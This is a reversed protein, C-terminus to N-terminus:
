VSNEKSFAEKLYKLGRSARIAAAKPTVGLITAIQRPPLGDIYRLKVAEAWAPKTQALRHIAKRVWRRQSELMAYQEPDDIATALDKIAHLPIDPGLGLLAEEVAEESLGTLEAIHPIDLEMRADTIVSKVLWRDREKGGSPVRDLAGVKFLHKVMRSKACVAALAAFRVGEKPKGREIAEYLGIVGESILDDEIEPRNLKRAISRVLKMHALVLKQRGAEGSSWARDEEERSLNPIAYWDTKSM